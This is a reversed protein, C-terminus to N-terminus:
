DPKACSSSICTSQVGNQNSYFTSLFNKSFRNALRMEYRPDTYAVRQQFDRLELSSIISEMYDFGNLMIIDLQVKTLYVNVATSMLAQEDVSFVPNNVLPGIIERAANIGDVRDQQQIDDGQTITEDRAIAAEFSEFIAYQVLDIMALARADAMLDESVRSGTPNDIAQQANFELFTKYTDFSEQAVQNVDIGSAGSRMTEVFQNDSLLGSGVRDASVNLSSLLLSFILILKKM